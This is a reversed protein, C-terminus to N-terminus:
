RAAEKTHPLLHEKSDMQLVISRTLIVGVVGLSFILLAMLYSPLVAGLTIGVAGM